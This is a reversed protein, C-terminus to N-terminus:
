KKNNIKDELPVGNSCVIDKYDIKNKLERTIEVFDKDCVWPNGKLIFYGNGKGIQSKFINRALTKLNNGSM